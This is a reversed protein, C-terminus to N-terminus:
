FPNVVREGTHLAKTIEIWIPELMQVYVEGDVLISGGTPPDLMNICRLLTSKGCGSAGIVAIVDGKQITTCVDKLPMSNPYAKQLHRLEIM